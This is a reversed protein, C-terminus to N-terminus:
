SVFMGRAAAKAKQMKASLQCQDEEEPMRLEEIKKFVEKEMEMLASVSPNSEMDLDATSWQAISHIYDLEVASLVKELLLNALAYEIFGMELAAPSEFGLLPRLDEMQRQRDEPIHFKLMSMCGTVKFCLQKFESVLDSESIRNEEIGSRLEMVKNAMKDKEERAKAESILRLHYDRDGEYEVREARKYLAQYAKQWAKLDKRMLDKEKEAREARKEM